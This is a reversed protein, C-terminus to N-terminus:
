KYMNRLSEMHLWFLESRAHGYSRQRHGTTDPVPIITTSGNPGTLQPTPGGYTLHLWVVWLRLFKTYFLGFFKFFSLSSSADLRGASVLLNCQKVSCLLPLEPKVTYRKIKHEWCRWLVLKVGIPNQRSLFLICLLILASRGDRQSWFHATLTLSCSRRLFYTLLPTLQTVTPQEGRSGIIIWGTPPLSFCKIIIYIDSPLLFAAETYSCM